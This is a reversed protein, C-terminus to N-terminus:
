ALPVRPPARPLIRRAARHGHGGASQFDKGLGDVELVVPAAKLRAFRERRSVALPCGPPPPERPYDRHLHPQDQRVRHPPLPVRPRPRPGEVPLARPGALALLLDTALGLMGIMLIAAFVNDFIRYKAQQNIFWTIGTSIGVVEAVILYTWAWGICSASTATSTPCSAPCSWRSSCSGANPASPRRRRWCRATWSERRRQLHGPGAPFLHRHLRHRDEAGPRHRPHRRRPGRLRAGAPLPFIRHLARHAQFLRRYTGCLIGLPVGVLSSELLFGWFIIQISHWLSQHLWPEGVAPAHGEAVARANEEAFVKKEALTGVTFISVGGPNEIKVLPHWIWPVYSVACWVLLPLVFSGVSLWFQTRKSLGAFPVLLKGAM